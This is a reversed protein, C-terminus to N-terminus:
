KKTSESLKRIYGQVEALANSTQESYAGASDLHVHKLLGGIRRLERLMAADSSAVLKRGFYRKRVLSSVSVGALEADEKLGLKEATTLRVNVVADLPEPGISEFPMACFTLDFSFLGQGRWAGPPCTSDVTLLSAGFPPRGKLACM